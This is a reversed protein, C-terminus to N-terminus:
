DYIIMEYYQCTSVYWGISVLLLVGSSTSSSRISSTSSGRSSRKSSSRSSSSIIINIIIIVIIIVWGQNCAWRQCPTFWLGVQQTRHTIFHADM